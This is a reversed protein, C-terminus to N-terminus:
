EKFAVDYGERVPPAALTERYRNVQKMYLNQDAVADKEDEWLIISKGKGTKRDVLLLAGCYGKGSRTEPMDAERYVRIAEDIKDPIMQFRTLRAFM